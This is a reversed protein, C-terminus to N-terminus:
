VDTFLMQQSMTMNGLPWGGVAPPGTFTTFNDYATLVWQYHQTATPLSLAAVDGFDQYKIKKNIPVYFTGNYRPNTFCHYSVDAGLPGTGYEYAFGNPGTGPASVEMAESTGSNPMRLTFSKKFLIDVKTPDVFDCPISTSVGEYIQAKSNIIDEPQQKSRILMLMWKTQPRYQQAELILSIRLGKVFIENGVRIGAGFGIQDGSAGIQTRFANSTINLINNHYVVQNAVLQIMQKKVEAKRNVVAMVRKAFKKPAAKKAPRPINKKFKKWGGTKAKRKLAM